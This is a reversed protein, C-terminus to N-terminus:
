FLLQRMGLPGVNLHSTASIMRPGWKLPRSVRGRTASCRYDKPKQGSRGSQSIQGLGATIMAKRHVPHGTWRHVDGDCSRLVPTSQYRNTM